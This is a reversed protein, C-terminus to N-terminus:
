VLKFYKEKVKAGNELPVGDAKCAIITGDLLCPRIAGLLSQVTGFRLRLEDNEAIVDKLRQPALSFYNKAFNAKDAKEAMMKASQKGGNAKNELQIKIKELRKLVEEKEAFKVDALVELAKVIAERQTMKNEM